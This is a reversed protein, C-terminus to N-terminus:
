KKLITNNIGNEILDIVLLKLPTPGPNGGTHWQDISEVVFDGVHYDDTKNTELNTVRLNGALVYGFRPYPHRHVPLVAGPEVSFESVVLEGNKQPFTIPQGSSTEMTSLLQTITVPAKSDSTEEAHVPQAGLLFSAAALMVFRM